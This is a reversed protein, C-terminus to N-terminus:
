CPVCLCNDALQLSIPSDAFWAICYDGGPWQTRLYGSCTPWDHINAITTIHFQQRNLGLIAEHMTEHLAWVFVLSFVIVCALLSPM